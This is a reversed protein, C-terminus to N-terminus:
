RDVPERVEGVSGVEMEAPQVTSGEMEPVMNTSLEHVVERAEVEYPAKPQAIWDPPIGHPAEKEADRLKKRDKRRRYYCKVCLLIPILIFFIALFTIYVVRNGGSTQLPPSSNSSSAMPSPTTAPLAARSSSSAAWTTPVNSTNAMVQWVLTATNDFNM